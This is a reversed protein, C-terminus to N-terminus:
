NGGLLREEVTNALFNATTYTDITTTDYFFNQNDLKRSLANPYSDEFTNKIDISGNKLEFTMEHVTVNVIEYSFRNKYEVNNVFKLIVTNGSYDIRDVRNVQLPKGQEVYLADEIEEILSAAKYKRVKKPKRSKKVPKRSTKKPKRSTKKPKRSPKRSKKVLNSKRNVKKVLVILESKKLTSYGKIRNNRCYDKLQKVSMKTFESM